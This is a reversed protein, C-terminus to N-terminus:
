LLDDAADDAFIVFYRWARQDHARRRRRPLPYGTDAARRSRVVGAIMAIASEDAFAQPAYAHLRRGDGASARGHRLRRRSIDVLTLGRWRTQWGAAFAPSLTDADGCADADSRLLSKDHCSRRQNPLRLQLLTFLAIAIEDRSLRRPPVASASMLLMLRAAAYYRSAMM